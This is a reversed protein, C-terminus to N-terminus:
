HLHFGGSSLGRGLQELASLRQNLGGNFEPDIALIRDSEDLAEQNMGLDLYLVARFSRVFLDLPAREVADNM